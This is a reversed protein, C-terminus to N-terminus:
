NTSKLIDNTCELKWFFYDNKNLNNNYKVSSYTSYKGGGSGGGGEGGPM